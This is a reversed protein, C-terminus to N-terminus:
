LSSSITGFDYSSTEVVGYLSYITTAFDIVPSAFLIISFKKSLFEESIKDLGFSIPFISQKEIKTFGSWSCSRYSQLVFILPVGYKCKISQFVEDTFCLKFSTLANSHSM